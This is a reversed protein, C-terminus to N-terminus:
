VLFEHNQIQYTNYRKKYDYKLINELFYNISMLDKESIDPRYKSIFNVVSTKEVKKHNIIKGNDEFLDCSRPCELSIDKQIRGLYKEMLALQEKDKKDSNGSLDPEFIYKKTLLYILICGISWVESKYNYKYGMINEPSRFARIQLEDDEDIEDENLANSFDVIKFKLNTINIDEDDDYDEDCSDRFECTKITKNNNIKNHKKNDLNVEELDNINDENINLENCNLNNENESNYDNESNNSIDSDYNDEEYKEIEKKILNKLNLSARIKIKRKIKKKKHKDFDDFNKPLLNKIFKKYIESINGNQIKFDNNFWDLFKQLNPDIYDSLINDLKLDTHLIKFTHLENMGFLIYRLIHKCEEVNLNKKRELIDELSLGLLNLVICHYTQNNFIYQFNDLSGSNCKLQKENIVKLTNIEYDYESKDKPFYIKIVCENDKEINYCLWVRSFTGRGIYRLIIYNNNLLEGVFENEIEDINDSSISGDSNDEYQEIKKQQIKFKKKKAAAKLKLGNM